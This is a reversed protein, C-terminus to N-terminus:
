WIIVNRYLSLNYCRIQKVQILIVTYSYEKM